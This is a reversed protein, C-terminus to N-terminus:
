RGFPPGPPRPTDPAAAKLLDCAQLLAKRLDERDLTPFNEIIEDVSYGEALNEFLLEVQVRTGRFIPRGAMIRENRVVVSEPSASM